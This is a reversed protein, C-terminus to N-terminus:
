RGFTSDFLLQTHRPHRQYLDVDHLWTPSTAAPITAATAAASAAPTTAPIAASQALTATAAAAIAPLM